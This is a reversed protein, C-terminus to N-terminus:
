AHRTVFLPQSSAPATLPKLWWMGHSMEALSICRQIEGPDLNLMPEVARTWLRYQRLLRWITKSLRM